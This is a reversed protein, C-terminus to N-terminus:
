TTTELLFALIALMKNLADLMVPVHVYCPAIEKYWECLNKKETPFSYRHVDTVVTKLFVLRFVLFYWM